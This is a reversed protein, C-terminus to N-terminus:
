EVDVIILYALTQNLLQYAIEGFTAPGIFNGTQRGQLNSYLYNLICNCSFFIDKGLDSPINEIFKNVYDGVVKAQRYTIDKFVPAYFKVEGSKVDINQFSVNVMAGCYDAVLPLKIDAQNKTLFDALNQKTGDIIAEKASFGDQEFQITSGDGQEFINIIGVEAAKGAPLHVRLTVAGEEQYSPKGQGNFIKPTTKGLEELNVGTIWGILPSYAFQEYTPANLAFSLHTKSTAPIIVFTFGNHPANKYIESINEPTYVTIETQTIYEPMETVFIKSQSFEGGHDGVFYPITGGIWNGPPLQSLVKEDGALILVRNAAIMKKAEDVTLFCQKM